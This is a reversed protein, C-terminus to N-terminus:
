SHQSSYFYDSGIWKAYGISAYRCPQMTLSLVAIVSSVKVAPEDDESQLWRIKSLRFQWHLM